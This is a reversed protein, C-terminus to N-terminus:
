EVIAARLSDAAREARQRVHEAEAAEDAEFGAARLLEAFNDNDKSDTEM